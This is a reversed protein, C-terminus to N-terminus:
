RFQEFREKEEADSALFDVTWRWLDEQKGEDYSDESSRIEKGGDLSSEYYRASLGEVEKGIALKVLGEASQAPTFIRPDVLVRLLPIIHPMVHMWLFKLFPGAERALGSGPMLCPDLATVTIRREPCVKRLHRDLAYTWLINCLKSTAYRQRGPNGATLATPRALEEASTYVADPLGSKQAPDHTGSATVVVRAGEEVLYPALLHFLLAHGLHNIAFTSEIGDATKTLDGPFQLGANLLLAQIPPFNKSGWSEAYSRVNKLSSLDLPLFIVNSQNLARNISEAANENDSRSSIVILYEPHAKAIKLATQYGLNITGGTILITRKFTM